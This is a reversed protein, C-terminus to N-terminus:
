VKINSKQIESMLLVDYYNYDVIQQYLKIIILDIFNRDYNSVRQHTYSHFNFGYLSIFKKVFIEFSNTNGILKFYRINDVAKEYDSQTIKYDNEVYFFMEYPIGAFTKTFPNSTILNNKILEIIISEDTDQLEFNLNINKKIVQINKKNLNRQLFTHFYQYYINSFFTKHVDRVLTFTDSKKCEDSFVYHGSYIQIDKKTIFDKFTFNAIIGKKSNNKVNIDHNKLKEIQKLIFYFTSGATKPIHLFVIPSLVSLM